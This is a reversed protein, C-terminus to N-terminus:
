AAYSRPSMSCGPVRAGPNTVVADHPVDDCVSEFYATHEATM